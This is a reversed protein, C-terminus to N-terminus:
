EREVGRGFDIEREADKPFAVISEMFEVGEHDFQRVQGILDLKIGAMFKRKRAIVGADWAVFV